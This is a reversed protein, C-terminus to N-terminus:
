QGVKVLLPEPPPLAPLEGSRIRVLAEKRSELRGTFASLGFESGDREADMRASVLYLGPRGFTRRPCLEALLSTASVTQGPGLTTYAQRDPSRNDPEPDCTRIGDPAHVTFSVLERRFYLQSKKKARVEVTATASLETAADSGHLLRFTLPLSPDDEAEAATLDATLTFPNAVLEKVCLDHESDIEAPAAVPEAIFPPHQAVALEVRKGQKFSPRAPVPTYGLKATVLQGTSLLSDGGPSICYLRPDFTTVLGEGPAVLRSADSAGRDAFGEPLRCVVPAPKKQWKPRPKHPDEPTELSLTLRRLDLNVRAPQTGRNVVAVLWLEGARRPLLELRLHLPNDIPTPEGTRDVLAKVQAPDPPASEPEGEGSAGPPAAPEGATSRAGGAALQSTGGASAAGEGISSGIVGQRGGCASLAGALLLTVFTSGRM